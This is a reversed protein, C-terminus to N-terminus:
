LAGPLGQAILNRLWHYMPDAEKYEPWQVIIAQDSPLFGVSVVKVPMRFAFDQFLWTSGIAIMDSDIVLRPLSSYHTTRVAIKRNRLLSQAHATLYSFSELRETVAAHRADIFQAENIIDNYAMNKNCALCSLRDSILRHSKYRTDHYRSPALVLDAGNDFAEGVTTSDLPLIDLEINPALHLLRPVARSLLITELAETAAIKVKRRTTAPDFTLRTRFTDELENILGRIRPQLAQALPTLTRENGLYIVLDDEFQSRLKKLAGSMAPQSLLVRRGAETLSRSSLIADLSYLLNLNHRRTHHIDFSDLVDQEKSM